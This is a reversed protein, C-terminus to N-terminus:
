VYLLRVTLVVGAALLSSEDFLRNTGEIRIFDDATTGGQLESVGLNQPNPAFSSLWTDFGSFSTLDEQDNKGEFPRPQPIPRHVPRHTSDVVCKLSDNSIGETDTYDPLNNGGNGGDRGGKFKRFLKKMTASTPCNFTLPTGLSDPVPFFFFTPPSSPLKLPCM